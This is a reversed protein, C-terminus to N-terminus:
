SQVSGTLQRIRMALLPWELPRALYDDAGACIGDLSSAPQQPSAIALVPLNKLAPTARILAILRLGDLRAMALDIIVLDFASGLLTHMAGVGDRATHTECAEGNQHVKSIAQSVDDNGAVLVRPLSNSRHFNSM